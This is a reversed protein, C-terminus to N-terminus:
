IRCRSGKVQTSLRLDYAIDFEDIRARMRCEVRKLM